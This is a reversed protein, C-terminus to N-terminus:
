ILQTTTATRRRDGTTQRNRMRAIGSPSLSALVECVPSFGLIAILRILFIGIIQGGLSFVTRTRGNILCPRNTVDYVRRGGQLYPIPVQRGGGKM